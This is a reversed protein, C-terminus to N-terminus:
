LPLPYPAAVSRSCLPRPRVHVHHLTCPSIALSPLSPLQCNGSAAAQLVCASGVQLPDIIPESALPGTVQAGHPGVVVAARHFIQAQEAWPEGGTFDILHLPPHGGGAMGGAHSARQSSSSASSPVSSSFSSHSTFRDVLAQRISHQHKVGRGKHCKSLRRGASKSASKSAYSSTKAGAKPPAAKAAGGDCESRDMLVIADLAQLSSSSSRTGETGSDRTGRPVRAGSPPQTPIGHPAARASRIRALRAHLAERLKLIHWFNRYNAPSCDFTARDLDQLTHWM